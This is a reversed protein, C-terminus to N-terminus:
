ACPMFDLVDAACVFILWCVSHRSEIRVQCRSYCPCSISNRSETTMVISKFFIQGPSFGGQERSWLEDMAGTICCRRESCNWSQVTVSQIRLCCIGITCNPIAAIILKQFSCQM